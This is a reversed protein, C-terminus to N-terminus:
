LLKIVDTEENILIESVNPSKKYRDIMKKKAESKSEAKIINTTAVKKEDRYILLALVKYTHV